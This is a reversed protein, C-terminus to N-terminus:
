ILESTNTRGSRGSYDNPFKADGVRHHLWKLSKGSFAKAHKETTVMSINKFDVDGSDALKGIWAGDWPKNENLIKYEIYGQKIWNILKPIDKHKMNIVIIGTEIHTFGKVTERQGAFCSSGIVQQIWKENPSNSAYVDSDMWILYDHKTNELAHLLTFMKFSWRLAKRLRNIEKKNKTDEKLKKVHNYFKQWQPCVTHFDLLHVLNNFHPTHNEAYYFIDWHTHFYKIWTPIFTKGYLNYGDEHLTTVVKVTNM